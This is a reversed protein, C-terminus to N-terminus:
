GFPVGAGGWGGTEVQSDGWWIREPSIDLRKAMKDIQEKTIKRGYYAFWLSDRDDELMRYLEEITGSEYTEELKSIFHNVRSVYRDLAYKGKVTIVYGPKRRAGADDIPEVRELYGKEMLDSTTFKMFTTSDCFLELLEDITPNNSNANLGKILELLRMTAENESGTHIALKNCFM